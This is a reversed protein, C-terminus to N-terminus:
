VCTVKWVALKDKPDSRVLASEARLVGNPQIHDLQLHSGSRLSSLKGREVFM